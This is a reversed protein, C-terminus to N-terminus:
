PTDFSTKADFDTWYNELDRPPPLLIQWERLSVYNRHGALFLTFGRGAPPGFPVQPKECIAGSYRSPIESQFKGYREPCCSRVKHGFILVWTM